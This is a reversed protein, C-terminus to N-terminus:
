FNAFKGGSPYWSYKGILDRDAGSYEALQTASIGSQNQKETLIPFIGLDMVTRLAANQPPQSKHTFM